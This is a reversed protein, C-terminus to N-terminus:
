KENALLYDFAILRRNKVDLSGSRFDSHSIAPLCSRSNTLWSYVACVHFRPSNIFAPFLSVVCFLPRPFRIFPVRPSVEFIAVRM